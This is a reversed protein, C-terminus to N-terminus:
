EKSYKQIYVFKSPVPYKGCFAMIKTKETNIKMNYKISVQNLNYISRQLDDESSAVLSVDDAFLLLELNTNRNLRIRGHPLENWKRIIQNM